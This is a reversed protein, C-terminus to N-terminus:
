EETSFHETHYRFFKLTSSWYGAGLGAKKMLEDYFCDADPLSHWVAPLFTAQVADERVILGDEGQRLARLLETRNNAKILEAKSLAAIEICLDELEPATLPPFRPDEFAALRANHIVDDLLSRRAKLTGICGRLAAHRKLTVFSARLEQLVPNLSDSKFLPLNENMAQEISHRAAKLLIARTAADITM